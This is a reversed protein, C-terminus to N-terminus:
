VANNAQALGDRPARHRRRPPCVLVSCRLRAQLARRAACPRTQGGCAALTRRLLADARAPLAIDRRGRRAV